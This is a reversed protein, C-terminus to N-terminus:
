VVRHDTTEQVNDPYPDSYHSGVAVHLIPFTITFWSNLTVEHDGLMTYHTDPM